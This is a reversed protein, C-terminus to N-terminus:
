TICLLNDLDSRLAQLTSCLHDQGLQMQLNSVLWRRDRTTLLLIDQALQSRLAEPFDIPMPDPPAAPLLSQSLEFLTHYHRCCHYQDFLDFIHQRVTARAQHLASLILSRAIAQWKIPYEAVLADIYNEASLMPM